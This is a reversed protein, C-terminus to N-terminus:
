SGVTAFCCRLLAELHMPDYPKELYADFLRRYAALRQDDEKNGTTAAIFIGELGAVQRLRRAAEGGHMRPMQVDLLAVQPGFTRALDLAAQGDYAVRVEHGWLQLLIRLTDAADRNDDV